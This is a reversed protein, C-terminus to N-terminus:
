NLRDDCQNYNVEPVKVTFLHWVDLSNKGMCFAAACKAGMKCSMKENMEKM